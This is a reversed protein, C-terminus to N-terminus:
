LVLSLTFNIAQLLLTVLAAVQSIKYIMVTLAGYVVLAIVAVILTVLIVKSSSDDIAPFFFRKQKSQHSMSGAGLSQVLLDM